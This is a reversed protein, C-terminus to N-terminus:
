GTWIDHYVHMKGGFIVKEGYIFDADHPVNKTTFRWVDPLQSNWLELEIDLALASQYVVASDLKYERIEAILNVFRRTISSLTAAHTDAPAVSEHCKESWEAM